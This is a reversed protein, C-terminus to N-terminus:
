VRGGSCNCRLVEFGQEVCLGRFVSVLIRLGLCRLGTEFLVICKFLEVLTCGVIRVLLHVVM